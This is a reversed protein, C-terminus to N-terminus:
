GRRVPWVARIAPDRLWLGAWMVIGLYVSFLTHSALPSGARMQTVMAGGFIAMSLTAGASSPLRRFVPDHTRDLRAQSHRANGHWRLTL